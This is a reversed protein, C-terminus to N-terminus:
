IILCHANGIMYATLRSLERIYTASAELLAKETISSAVRYVQIKPTLGAERLATMSTKQKGTIKM